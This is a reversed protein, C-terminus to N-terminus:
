EGEIAAAKGTEDRVSAEVQADLASAPAAADLERAPLPSLSQLKQQVIRM